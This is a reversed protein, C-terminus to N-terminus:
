FLNKNNKRAEKIMKKQHPITNKPIRKFFKIEKSQFDTKIKGSKSKVVFGHSIDHRFSNLSEFVGVYRQIIVNLNLEDRAARKVAQKMTENKRIMHGPLHWYNKYPNQTRKTLLISNDKFLLIDVCSFPFIRIFKKYNETSSMRTM